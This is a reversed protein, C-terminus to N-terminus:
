EPLDGDRNSRVVDTLTPLWGAILSGRSLTLATCRDHRDASERSRQPSPLQESEQM